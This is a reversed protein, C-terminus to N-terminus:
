QKVYITNECKIGIQKLRIELAQRSVGFKECLNAGDKGLDFTVEDIKKRGLREVNSTLAYKPMLLAGAWYNATREEESHLDKSRFFIPQNSFERTKICRIFHCGEHALSFRQNEFPYPVGKEDPDTNIFITKGKVLLAALRKEGPCLWGKKLFSVSRTKLGFVTQLFDDLKLPFDIKKLNKRLRYIKLFKLVESEIEPRFGPISSGKSPKQASLEEKDQNQLAILKVPDEDFIRALRLIKVHSLFRMGREVKHLMTYDIESIDGLERLSLRGGTYDELLIKSLEEM